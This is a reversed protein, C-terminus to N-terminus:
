QPDEDGGVMLVCDLMIYIWIYGLAPIASTPNLALQIASQPMNRDALDPDNLEM